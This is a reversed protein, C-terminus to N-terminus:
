RKGKMTMISTAFIKALEKTKELLWQCENHLNKPVLGSDRLVALWFITENASKLSHNFFNQYDKKSSAAYAEFYNAGISTGSRMLQAIIERIVPDKPLASLFRVLRLIYKYIRLKFEQKQKNKDIM